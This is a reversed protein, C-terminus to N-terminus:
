QCRVPQGQQSYLTYGSCNYGNCYVSQWSYGSQYYYIGQCQMTTGQGYTQCYTMAVVQGTSNYCQGNAQYYGGTGYTQCLNTAVVTGNSAYCQGNSMYYTLPQQYQYAQNNKNSDKACSLLLFPLVLLYKLLGYNLKM